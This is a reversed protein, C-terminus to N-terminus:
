QELGLLPTIVVQVEVTHLVVELQILTDEVVEVELM